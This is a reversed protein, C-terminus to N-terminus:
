RNGPLKEPFHQQFQALNFMNSMSGVSTYLCRPLRFLCYMRNRDERGETALKRIGRERMLIELHNFGESPRTQRFIDQMM